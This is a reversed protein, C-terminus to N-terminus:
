EQAYMGYQARLLAKIEENPEDWGRYLIEGYEELRFGADKKVLQLFANHKAPTVSLIFYRQEGRLRARLDYILASKSSSQGAFSQAPKM